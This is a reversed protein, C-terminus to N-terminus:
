QVQYSIIILYTIIKQVILKQQFEVVNLHDKFLIMILRMGHNKLGFQLLQILLDKLEELQLLIM